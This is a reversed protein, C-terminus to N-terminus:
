TETYFGLVYGLKEFYVHLLERIKFVHNKKRKTDNLFLIFILIIIICYFANIVLAQHQTSLLFVSKFM